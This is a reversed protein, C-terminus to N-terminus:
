DCSVEKERAAFGREHRKPRKSTTTPGRRSVRAPPGGFRQLECGASLPGQFRHSAHSAMSSCYLSSGRTPLPMSQGPRARKGTTLGPASDPGLGEAIGAKIRPAQQGPPLTASRNPRLPAPKNRHLCSPEGWHMIAASIMPSGSMRQRLEPSKVTYSYRPIKLLTVRQKGSRAAGTDGCSSRTRM